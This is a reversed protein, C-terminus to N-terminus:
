IGKLDFFRSDPYKHIDNLGKIGYLAIIDKFQSKILDKSIIRRGEKDRSVRYNSKEFASLAKLTKPGYWSFTDLIKNILSKENETLRNLPVEFLNVGHKKMSNYLRIFPANESNVYYDEEFLEKDFLAMSFGQAYYLLWQTYGPSLDGQTYYIMYQAILNIKRDTMKELVAQMTKRYAVNTLNDKNELLLEYYYIPDEVINKLKNSYEATPIDGEIYRIITTEGWGLLKALPKKGIRFDKLITQIEKATVITNEQGQVKNECMTRDGKTYHYELSIIM